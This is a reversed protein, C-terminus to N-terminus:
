FLVLQEPQGSLVWAEYDSRSGFVVHLTDSDIFTLTGIGFDGHWVTVDNLRVFDRLDDSSAFFRIM